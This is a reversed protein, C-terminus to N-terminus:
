HSVKSFTAEMIDAAWADSNSLLHGYARLTIEPSAHGIRRSITLVDMGAALLRSAHTHRLGHLM